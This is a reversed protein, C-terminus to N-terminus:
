PSTGNQGIESGGRVAKRPTGWALSCWLDCLRAQWDEKEQFADGRAWRPRSSIGM